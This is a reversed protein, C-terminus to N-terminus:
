LFEGITFRLNKSNIFNLSVNPGVFIHFLFVVTVAQNIDHNKITWHVHFATITSSHLTSLAM